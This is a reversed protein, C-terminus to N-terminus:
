KQGFERRFAEEDLRKYKYFKGVEKYMRVKVFWVYLQVILSLTALMLVVIVLWPFASLIYTADTM